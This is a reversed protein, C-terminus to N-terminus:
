TWKRANNSQTFHYHPSPRNLQPILTKFVMAMQVCDDKSLINLMVISFIDQDLLGFAFCSTECQLLSDSTSREPLLKLSTVSSLLAIFKVIVYWLDVWTRVHRSSASHMSERIDHWLHSTRDSPTASCIGFNHVLALIGHKFLRGVVQFSYSALYAPTQSYGPKTPYYRGYSKLRPLFLARKLYEMSNCLLICFRECNRQPLCPHAQRWRCPVPQCIINSELADPVGTSRSESM